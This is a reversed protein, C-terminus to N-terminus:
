FLDPPTSAKASLERGNGSGQPVCRLRHALEPYFARCTWWRKDQHLRQSHSEREQDYCAGNNLSAQNYHSGALAEIRQGFCARDIALLLSGTTRPLNKLFGPLIGPATPRTQPATSPRQRTRFWGRM